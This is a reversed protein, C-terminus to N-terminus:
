ALRTLLKTLDMQIKFRAESEEPASKRSARMDGTYLNTWLPERIKEGTFGEVFANSRM